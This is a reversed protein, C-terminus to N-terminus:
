FLRSYLRRHAEGDDGKGNFRSVFANRTEANCSVPQSLPFLTVARSSLSGSRRCAPASSEGPAASPSAHIPSRVSPKTLCDDGCHCRRARALGGASVIEVKSRHRLHPHVIGRVKVLAFHIKSKNFVKWYLQQAESSFSTCRWVCHSIVLRPDGPKVQIPNAKESGGRFFEYDALRHMIKAHPQILM